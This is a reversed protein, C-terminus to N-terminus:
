VATGMIVRPMGSDRITSSGVPVSHNYQCPCNSSVIIDCWFEAVEGIRMSKLLTEWVDLKFMNGFVVEMPVGVRKSDDLVTRDDNCLM